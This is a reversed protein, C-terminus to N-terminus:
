ASIGLTELRYLKVLEKWAEREESDDDFQNDLSKLTELTYFAAIKSEKEYITKPM